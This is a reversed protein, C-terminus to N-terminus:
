GFLSVTSFHIEITKRIFNQLFLNVFALRGHLTKEDLMLDTDCISKNKDTNPVHVLEISNM